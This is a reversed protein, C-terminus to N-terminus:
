AQRDRLGVRQREDRGIAGQRTDGLRNPSLHM